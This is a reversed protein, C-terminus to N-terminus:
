KVAGMSLGRVLYRQLVLVLLVVPVTALLGAASLRGWDVALFGVYETAMYTPLTRINTGTLTLAFFLENWSLIFALASVTVLGPVASPLVIHTLVRLRSAGDVYAAEEVEVPLADIFSRMVWVILALVVLLHGLILGTYSDLLNLNQYVQLLPVVVVIAPLMKTSLIFEALEFRGRMSSRSLVYAFPVGLLLGLGVSGVGVILSDQMAARFGPASLVATFNDLTPTFVFRPPFAIQDIPRKLAQLLMWLIPALTIVTGIILWLLALTRALLSHRM